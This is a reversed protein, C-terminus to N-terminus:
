PTGSRQRSFVSHASSWSTPSSSRGVSPVAGRIRYRVSTHRRTFPIGGGVVPHGVRLERHRPVDDVAEVEAPVLAHEVGAAAGAADGLLQERADRVARHDGDVAARRHDLLRALPEAVPDLREGDVQDLELDVSGNSAIREVAVKWQIASWSRRNARRCAASRGPPRSTAWHPPAPFMALTCAAISATSWGAKRPQAPGHFKAVGRASSPAASARRAEDVDPGPQLRPRDLGGSGRSYKSSRSGRSAGRAGAPRPARRREDVGHQRLEVLRHARVVHPQVDEASLM